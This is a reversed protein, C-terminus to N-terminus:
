FCIVCTMATGYRFMNDPVKDVPVGLKALVEDRVKCLEEIDEQRKKPSPDHGRKSRFRLLVSVLRVDIQNRISRTWTV